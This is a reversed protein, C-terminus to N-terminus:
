ATGGQKWIFGFVRELLILVLGLMLMWPALPSDRQIPDRAPNDLNADRVPARLGALSAVESQARATNSEARANLIPVGNSGVYSFRTATAGGGDAVWSLANYFVLKSLNSQDSEIGSVPLPVIAGRAAGDEGDRVAIWTDAVQNPRVVHALGQSQGIPVTAPALREFVDFNLNELIPHDRMFPGITRGQTGGQRSWGDYTLIFPGDPLIMDAGLYPAVIITTEVEGSQLLSAPRAVAELRWDVAVRDAAGLEMFVVDDVSLAGGDELTVRYNGAGEFPVDARWGGSRTEDRRFPVSRQGDPGDIEATVSRPMAGFSAVRIDIVPTARRLTAASVGVSWIALNDRPAGVQQWVVHGAYVAQNIPQAPLDTVVVVHTPTSNCATPVPLSLASLLTTVASGQALPLAADIGAQGQGLASYAVSGGVFALDICVDPDDAQMQMMQVLARQALDRAAYMRPRGNEGDVEMSASVDLVLRFHSAGTQTETMSVMMPYLALAVLAVCMLRLWFLWSAVLTRMSFVKKPAQSQPPPPMLHAVSLRIDRFNSRVLHFAIVSLAAGISGVALWWM